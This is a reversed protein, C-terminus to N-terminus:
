QILAVCQRKNLNQDVIERSCVARIHGNSEAVTWSLTGTLCRPCRMKGRSKGTSEHEAQILALIMLAITAEFETRLEDLGDTM